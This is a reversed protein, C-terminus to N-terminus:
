AAGTIMDNIDDVSMQSTKLAALLDVETAVVGGLKQSIAERVFDKLRQANASGTLIDTLLERRITAPFGLLESVLFGKARMPINENGFIRDLCFSYIGFDLRGAVAYTFELFEDRFLQPTIKRDILHRVIELFARYRTRAPNIKGELTAEIERIRAERFGSEMMERASTRVETDLTQAEILTFLEEYSERAKNKSGAAKGLPLLAAQAVLPDKSFISAVAAATRNLKSPGGSNFDDTIVFRSEDFVTLYRGLKSCAVFHDALDEKRPIKISSTFPQGNSM